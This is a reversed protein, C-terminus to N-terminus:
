PLYLSLHLQLLFEPFNLNSKKRIKQTANLALFLTGLKMKQMLPYLYISWKGIARLGNSRGMFFPVVRRETKRYKYILVKQTNSVSQINYPPIKLISTISDKNVGIKLAFIQEM